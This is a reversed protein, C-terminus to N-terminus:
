SISANKETRLTLFSGNGRRVRLPAARSSLSDPHCGHKGRLDVIAWRSDRPQIHAVAILRYGTPGGCFEPPAPWIV